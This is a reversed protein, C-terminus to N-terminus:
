VCALPPARLIPSIYYLHRSTPAMYHHAFRGVKQLEEGIFGFSSGRLSSIHSLICSHCSHSASDIKSGSLVPPIPGVTVLGRSSLYAMSHDPWDVAWHSHEILPAYLSSGALLAVILRLIM